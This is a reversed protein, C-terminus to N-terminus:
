QGSVELVRDGHRLVAGHYKGRCSCLSLPRPGPTQRPPSCSRTLWLSAMNGPEANKPLRDMRTDAAFPRCEHSFPVVCLVHSLLVRYLDFPGHQLRQGVGHEGDFELVAVANQCVDGALQAHVEDADQGAISDPHLQRRVVQSTTANRIPELLAASSISSGKFTLADTLARQSLQLTMRRCPVTITMQALGLCLCRCPYPMARMAPISM